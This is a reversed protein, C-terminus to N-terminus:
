SVTTQTINILTALAGLLGGFVAGWVVLWGLHKKIMDAIIDKVMRPTLEDLRMQVIESVKQHVMDTNMAARMQKQVEMQFAEGQSIVIIEEKLKLTFPERFSELMKAGGIMGLMGGMSSNMIVGVFADFTRSLDLHEIMSEFALPAHDHEDFFRSLNDPNFFQIMILDFIGQKFEEFRNPIVGSGYLFPVKEFLMYIALENTLSGAVAFLGTNYILPMHMFYGLFVLGISLIHSLTAKNMHM